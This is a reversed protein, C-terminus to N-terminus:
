ASAGGELRAGFEDGLEFDNRHEFLYARITKEPEIYTTISRDIRPNATTRDWVLAAGRDDKRTPMEFLDSYRRPAIGVFADFIVANEDAFDEDVRVARRYLDKTMSKPYPEIYVVRKIGALILHRACMHCPFTTCFLTAGKVAVGRRVADMLASMEAHVIRGFEIISSIRTNELLSNEGYLADDVLESVKLKTEDENLWNADVLRKLVEAVIERKMTASRDTGVRFDRYDGPEGPWVAGGGPRPVENRGVALVDGDENAIAAGVQRSLDASRLAAARAIYLGYEDRTPTHFPHNFVLEVFRSLESKVAARDSSRLFFDALPFTDQVNQGFNGDAASADKEILKESAHRYKAKDFGHHSRAIIESLADIREARPAYLSILYYARGYIRRLTKVEDPHKLSNLIYAHRKFPADTRGIEEERFDQIAIVSMLALADGSRLGRRLEDGANMYADIRQEEPGGDLDSLTKFKPIDKLLSSLRIEHPEIGMMYADSPLAGPGCGLMVRGRTM